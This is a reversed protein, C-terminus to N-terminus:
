SFHLNIKMKLNNHYDNKMEKKGNHFKRNDPEIKLKNLPRGVRLFPRSNHNLSVMM